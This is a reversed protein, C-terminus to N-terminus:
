ETGRERKIRGKKKAGHLIDELTQGKTQEDVAGGATLPNTAGGTQGGGEGAGGSSDFFAPSGSFTKVDPFGAGPRDGINADSPPRGGSYNSGGDSKLRPAAAVASAGKVIVSGGEGGGGGGGGGGGKAITGGKRASGGTYSSTGTVANGLTKPDKNQQSGGSKRTGGSFSGTGKIANATTRASSKKSAVTLEKAKRPTMGKTDKSGRPASLSGGSKDPKLVNVDGRGGGGSTGTSVDGGAKGARGAQGKPAKVVEPPEYTPAGTSRGARGAQGEPPKPPKPPKKPKPPQTSQAIPM